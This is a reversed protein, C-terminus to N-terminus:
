GFETLLTSSRVADDQVLLARLKRAIEVAAIRTAKPAANTIAYCEAGYATQPSVFRRKRLSSWLKTYGM